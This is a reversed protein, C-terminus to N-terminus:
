ARARKEGVILEDDGLYITKKECLDRFAAARLMPASLKGSNAMYFDTILLAREISIHPKTEFSQRKLQDIRENM